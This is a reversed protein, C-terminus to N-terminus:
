IQNIQVEATLHVQHRHLETGAVGRGVGITAESRRETRGVTAVDVAVTKSFERAIEDFPVSEPGVARPRIKRHLHNDDPCLRDPDGNVVDSGREAGGDVGAHKENGAVAAVMGDGVEERAPVVEVFHPALRLAAHVKDPLGPEAVRDVDDHGLLSEDFVHAPPGGAEGREAIRVEVLAGELGVQGLVPHGRHDAPIPDELELRAEQRAVVRRREFRRRFRLDHEPRRVSVDLQEIIIVVGRQGYRREVFVSGVGVFLPLPAFQQRRVPFLQAFPGFVIRRCEAVFVGQHRSLDGAEPTSVAIRHTQVLLGNLRGALLAEHLVLRQGVLHGRTEVHRETELSDGMCIQAVGSGTIEAPAGVSLDPLEFLEMWVEALMRGLGRGLGRDACWGILQVSPRHDLGRLGYGALDKEVPQDFGQHRDREFVGAGLTAQENEHAATRRM